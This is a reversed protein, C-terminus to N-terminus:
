GTPKAMAAPASRTVGVAIALRRKVLLVRDSRFLKLRETGDVVAPYPYFVLWLASEALRRLLAAHRASKRRFAPPALMTKM